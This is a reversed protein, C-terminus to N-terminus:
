GGLLLGGTFLAMRKLFVSRPIHNDATTVRSKVAPSFRSVIRLLMRRMDDLLMFFAVLVKAAMMGLAFALLINRLLPSIDTILFTRISILSFWALLSLLIYTAFVAKKWKKNVPKLLSRVLIYTYVEGAIFLLLFTLLIQQM